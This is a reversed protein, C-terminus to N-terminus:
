KPRTVEVFDEDRLDDLGLLIRRRDPDALEEATVRWRYLIDDVPAPSQKRDAALLADRVNSIFEHLDDDDLHRLWTWDGSYQRPRADPTAGLAQELAALNVAADGVTALMLLRQEPLVLFSQGDKDQVRAEGTRAADLVAGGHQSLDNAQLVTAPEAM